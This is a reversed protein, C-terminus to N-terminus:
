IDGVYLTVTGGNPGWSTIVETSDTVLRVTMPIVGAWPGASERNASPMLASVDIASTSNPHITRTATIASRNGYSTVDYVLTPGPQTITTKLFYHVQINAEYFCSATTVPNSQQNYCWAGALGSEPTFIPPVAATKTANGYPASTL